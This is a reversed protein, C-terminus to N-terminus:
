EEEHVRSDLMSDMKSTCPKIDIVPTEDFADIQDIYIINGDISLIKCTALAILNPRIPSRTAFVGRLPRTKDGRPHVKRTSRKTPTDNEHFWSLVIIHSFQDLGLLADRYKGDIEISVRGGKKKVFGVPFIEFLDPM